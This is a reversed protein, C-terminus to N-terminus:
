MDNQHLILLVNEPIHRNLGYPTAGKRNRHILVNDVPKTFLLICYQTSYQLCSHGSMKRIMKIIHFTGMRVLFVRRNMNQQDHSSITTFRLAGKVEYAHYMWVIFKTFSVQVLPCLVDFRTLIRILAPKLDIIDSWIHDILSDELIGQTDLRTWADM